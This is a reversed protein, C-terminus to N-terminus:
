SVSKVWVFFDIVSVYNAQESADQPAEVHDIYNDETFVLQFGQISIPIPSLCSRIAALINSCVLSSFGYATLQVRYKTLNTNGTSIRDPSESVVEYVIMPVIASSPAFSPYVQTGVIASVGSDGTLISYLCTKITSM